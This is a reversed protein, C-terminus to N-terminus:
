NISIPRIRSLHIKMQYISDIFILLSGTYM